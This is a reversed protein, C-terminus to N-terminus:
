VAGASLNSLPLPYYSCALDHLLVLRPEARLCEWEPPMFAM